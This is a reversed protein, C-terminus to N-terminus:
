TPENEPRRAAETLSVGCHTCHVLGHRFRPLAGSLTLRADAIVEYNTWFYDDCRPCLAWSVLYSAGALGAVGSLVGVSIVPLSDLFTGTGVVVMGAILLTVACRGVALMRRARVRTTGTPRRIVDRACHACRRPGFRFLPSLTTATRYYYCRERCYPCRVANVLIYSPLAWVVAGVMAAVHAYAPRLLLTLLPLAIFFGTLAIFWIWTAVPTLRSRPERLGPQMNIARRSAERALFFSVKSCRASAIRSVAIRPYTALNPESNTGLKWRGALTM